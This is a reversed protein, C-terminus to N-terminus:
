GQTRDDPPVCRLLPERATFRMTLNAISMTQLAEKYLKEAPDNAQSTDSTILVTSLWFQSLLAELM